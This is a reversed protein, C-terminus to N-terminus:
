AAVVSQVLNPANRQRDRLAESRLNERNSKGSRHVLSQSGPYGQLDVSKPSGHHQLTAQRCSWKLRPCNGLGAICKMCYVCAVAAYYHTSFYKISVVLCSVGVPASRVQFGPIRSDRYNRPLFAAFHRNLQYQKFAGFDVCVCSLSVKYTNNPWKWAPQLSSRPAHLTSSDMDNSQTTTDPLYQRDSKGNSVEVYGCRGSLDVRCDVKPYSDLDLFFDQPRIIEDCLGGWSGAKGLAPKSSSV